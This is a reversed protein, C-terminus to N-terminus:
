RVGARYLGHNLARIPVAAAGALEPTRALPVQQSIAHTLDRLALAPLTDADLAVLPVHSSQASACLDAAPPIVALIPISLQTAIESIPMPSVLASRNVLAVGTSIRAANWSDVRHLVLKAAQVSISDREVVLTWFDSGEIVARNTEALSVPLDVVVYDALESALALLALANEPTIPKSNEPNRSGFLVDLGAPNRCPWLCTEAERAAFEEAQFLDGIDRTSRHPQFYHILTGLESHLDVLIVTHDKVLTAAVNLAVTTTGAGGKSGMFVLVRGGKGTAAAPRGVAAPLETKGAVSHVVRLLDVDYAEQILYDAAGESVAAEALSEDASSTLVVIPLGQAGTQLELFPALRDGQSSGADPLNMLVLDVGGGWIRALATPVDAVRRLKFHSAQDGLARRIADIGTSNEDILLILTDRDM